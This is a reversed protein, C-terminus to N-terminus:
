SVGLIRFGHYELIRAVPGLKGEPVDQIELKDEGLVITPCNNLQLDYNAFSVHDKLVPMKELRKGHREVYWEEWKITGQKVWAIQLTVFQSSM